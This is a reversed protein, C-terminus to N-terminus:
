HGAKTMADLKKKALDAENGGPFFKIVDQLTKRAMDWEETAYFTYGLKLAADSEKVSGKYEKLVTLFRRKAEPYKEMSYYSEGIWYQANPAYKSAPFRKLFDQFAVVAQYPDDKLLDYAAKYADADNMASGANSEKEAPAPAPADAPKEDVPAPADAPADTSAGDLKQILSEMRDDLDIFGDKQQQKLQDLAHRLEENEGRLSNVDRQLEDVRQFLEIVAEEAPQLAYAPMLWSLGVFFVAIATIKTNM